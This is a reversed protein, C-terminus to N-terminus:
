QQARRRQTTARDCARCERRTTGKYHTIRTNEEDFEHGRVCHTKYSHANRTRGREVSDRRNDLNTGVLLHDPNCCPPNDCSHRLVMGDPIAGVLMTYVYRHALRTTGDWRAQGYGGANKSGLWIWCEGVPRDPLFKSLREDNTRCPM